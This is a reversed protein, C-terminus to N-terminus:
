GGVSSTPCTDYQTMAPVCLPGYLNKVASRIRSHDRSHVHNIVPTWGGRVRRALEKEASATNCFSIVSGLRLGGGHAEVM